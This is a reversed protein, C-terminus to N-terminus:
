YTEKESLWTKLQDVEARATKLEALLRIIYDVPQEGVMWAQAMDNAHIWDVIRQLDKADDENLQAQTPYPDDFATDGEARAAKLEALLEPFMDIKTCARSWANPDQDIAEAREIIDDTM